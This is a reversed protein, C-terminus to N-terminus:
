SRSGRRFDIRRFGGYFYVLLLIIIAFIIFVGTIGTIIVITVLVGVIASYVLLTALLSKLFYGDRM